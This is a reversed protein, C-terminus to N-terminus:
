RRAGGPCRNPARPGAPAASARRPSRRPGGRPDGGRGEGGVEVFEFEVERAQARVGSCKKRVMCRTRPRKIRNICLLRRFGGRRARRRLVADAAERLLERGEAGVHVRDYGAGRLAVHLHCRVGRLEERLAVRQQLVAVREESLGSAGWRAGRKWGKGGSICSVIMM